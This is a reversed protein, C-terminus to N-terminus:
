FARVYYHEIPNYGRRRYMRDLTQDRMGELRIMSAARAGKARAWAECAAWLAVSERAGDKGDVWWFLEQAMLIDARIWVPALVFGCAGQIGNREIVQLTGTEAEVLAELGALAAEPSFKAINAWPSSCWFREAM